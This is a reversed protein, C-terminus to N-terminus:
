VGYFLSGVTKKYYNALKIKVEDRPCRQGLEYMALASVSIDLDDAVQTRSRDGRLILLEVGIERKSKM